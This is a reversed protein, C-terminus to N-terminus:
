VVIFCFTIGCKPLIEYIYLIEQFLNIFSKCWFLMDYQFFFYWLVRSCFRLVCQFLMKDWTPDFYWVVNFYFKMGCSCRSITGWKFLIYVVVSPCFTMGWRFLIEYLLRLLIEYWVEVFNYVVENPRFRTSCLFLIACWTSAYDWEVSSSVKNLTWSTM